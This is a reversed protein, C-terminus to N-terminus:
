YLKRYRVFNRITYKKKIIDVETLFSYPDVDYVTCTASDGANLSYLSAFISMQIQGIDSYDLRWWQHGESVKATALKRFDENEDGTIQLNDILKIPNSNLITHTNRYLTMIQNYLSVEDYQDIYVGEGIDGYRNDFYRQNKNRTAEVKDSPIIDKIFATFPKSIDSSIEIMSCVYFLEDTGIMYNPNIHVIPRKMTKAIKIADAIM